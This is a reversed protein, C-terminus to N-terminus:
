ERESQLLERVEPLLVLIFVKDSLVPSQDGIPVRNVLRPHLLTLDYGHALARVHLVPFLLHLVQIILLLDEVQVLPVVELALPPFLLVSEFLHEPLPLNGRLPELVPGNCNHDLLDPVLKLLPNLDPVFM